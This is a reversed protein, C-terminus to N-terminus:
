KADPGGLVSLALREVREAEDQAGEFLTRLEPPLLADPCEDNVLLHAMPLRMGAKTAVLRLLADHGAPRAPDILVALCGCYLHGMEMGAEPSEAPPLTRRTRRQAEYIAQAERLVYLQVAPLAAIRPNSPM